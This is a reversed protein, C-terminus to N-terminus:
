NVEKLYEEVAIWSCVNRFRTWPNKGSNINMKSEMKYEETINGVTGEHLYEDANTKLEHISSCYASCGKFSHPSDLREHHENKLKKYNSNIDLIENHTPIRYVPALKNQIKSNSKLFNYLDVSDLRTSTLIEDNILLMEIVCETRWQTYNIVQNRTVGVVPYYAYVPHLFRNFQEPEGYPTSFHWFTTDPLSENYLLSSDGFKNEIWFVYERWNQNSIESQDCYFNDSVKVTGPPSFTDKQSAPLHSQNACGICLLFLSLTFHIIKL